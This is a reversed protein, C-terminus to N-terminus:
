PRKRNLVYNLVPIQPHFYRVSAVCTRTFRADLRSAAIYVCDIM